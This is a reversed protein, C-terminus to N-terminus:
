GEALLTSANVKQKCLPGTNCHQETKEGGKSQQQHKLTPLLFIHFSPQLHAQAPSVTDHLARLNGTDKSNRCRLDGRSHSQQTGPHQPSGSVPLQCGSLLM